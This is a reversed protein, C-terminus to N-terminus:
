KGEHARATKEMQDVPANHHVLYAIWWHSRGVLHICGAYVAGMFRNFGGRFLDTIDYHSLLISFYGFQVPNYARDLLPEGM